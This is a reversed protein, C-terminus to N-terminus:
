KFFLESRILTVDSEKGDTMKKTGKNVDNPDICTNCPTEINEVISVVGEQM